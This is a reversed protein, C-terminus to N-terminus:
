TDGDGLTTHQWVDLSHKEGLLRLGLGGAALGLFGQKCVPFCLPGESPWEKEWALKSTQNRKTTSNITTIIISSNILLAHMCM